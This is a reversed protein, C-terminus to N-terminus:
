VQKIKLNPWILIRLWAPVHGKEVFFNGKWILYIAFVLIESTEGFFLKQGGVFTLVDM